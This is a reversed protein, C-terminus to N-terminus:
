DCLNMVVYEMGLGVNALTEVSRMSCDGMELPYRLFFPTASKLAVATFLPIFYPTVALGTVGSLIGWMMEHASWSHGVTKVIFMSRSVFDLLDDDNIPDDGITPLDAAVLHNGRNRLLVKKSASVFITLIEKEKTNDWALTMSNEVPTWNTAGQDRIGITLVFWKCDDDECDKFVIREKDPGLAIYPQPHQDFRINVYNGNKKFLVKALQDTPDANLSLTISEDNKLNTPAHWYWEPEREGEYPSIM